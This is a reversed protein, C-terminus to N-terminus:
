RRPIRKENKAKRKRRACGKIRMEDAVQLMDDMESELLILGHNDHMHKWLPYSVSGTPASSGRVARGPRKQIRHAKKPRSM